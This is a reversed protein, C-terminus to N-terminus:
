PYWNGGRKITEAMEAKRWYFTREPIGLNLCSEEHICGIAVLVDVKNLDINIKQKAIAMVFFGPNDRSM